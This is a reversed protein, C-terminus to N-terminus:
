RGRQQALLIRENILKILAQKEIDAFDVNLLIVKSKEIPINQFVRRFGPLQKGYKSEERFAIAITPAYRTYYSMAEKMELFPLKNIEPNDYVILESDTLELEPNDFFFKGSIKVLSFLGLTSM